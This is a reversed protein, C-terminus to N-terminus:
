ATAPLSAAVSLDEHIEAWHIGEGEGLLEFHQRQDATAHLLRPFSALPIEDDGVLVECAKTADECGWTISSNHVM